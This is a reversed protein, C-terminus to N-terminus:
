IKFKELKEKLNIVEDKFKEISESSGDLGERAKNMKNNAEDVAKLKQTFERIAKNYADEVDKLPDYKRFRLKQTMDGDAFSDLIKEARYIPGALKHSTFISIISIVIVILVFEITGAIIFTMGLSNNATIFSSVAEYYNLVDRNPLIFYFVTVSVFFSITICVIFKLLFKSEFGKEIM